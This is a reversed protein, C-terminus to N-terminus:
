QVSSIGFEHECEVAQFTNCAADEICALYNDVNVGQEEWYGCGQLCTDRTPYAPYACATVLEDCVLDCSTIVAAPACGALLILSLCARM